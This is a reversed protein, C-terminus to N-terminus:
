PSRPQGAGAPAQARNWAHVVAALDPPFRPATVQCGFGPLPLFPIPAECSGRVPPGAGVGPAPGNGRRPLTVATPHRPWKESKPPGIMIVGILILAGVGFDM